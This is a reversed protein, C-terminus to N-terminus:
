KNGYKEFEANFSKRLVNLNKVFETGTAKLKEFNTHEMDITEELVKKIKEQEKWETKANEYKLTLQQFTKNLEISIKVMEICKEYNKEDYYLSERFSLKVSTNTIENRKQQANMEMMEEKLLPNFLFYNMYTKHFDSLSPRLSDTYASIVKNTSKFVIPEANQKEEETYFKKRRKTIM